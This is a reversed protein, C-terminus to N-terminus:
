RLAARRLLAAFAGRGYEALYIGAGIGLPVGIVSAIALIMVSGVIANAVGGGQEGVPVPLHTFFALNLSGVGRIVLYGFVALLPAIVLMAMLIAFGTAFRDTLKRRWDLWRQRSPSRDPV